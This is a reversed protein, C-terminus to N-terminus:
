AYAAEAQTASHEQGRFDGRGYAVLLLLGGMIALTELFM